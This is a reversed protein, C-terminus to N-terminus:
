NCIVKFTTPITPTVLVNNLDIHKWVVDIIEGTLDTIQVSCLKNLNHNINQSITAINQTHVFNSDSGSGGGSFTSNIKIKKNGGIEEVLEFSINNGALLKDSLTGSVLDDDSSKVAEDNNEDIGGNVKKLWMNDFANQLQNSTNLSHLPILDNLDFAIMPHNFQLKFPQGQLNVIDDIIFALNNGTTSVLFTM